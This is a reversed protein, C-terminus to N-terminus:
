QALLRQSQWKRYTFLIPMNSWMGVGVPGWFPHPRLEAEIEDIVLTTQEDIEVFRHQHVWKQFPGRLQRDIFSTPTVSEIKAQWHIPLATLWLTFSMEDGEGLEPPAHHLQVVIPPPTIAKMSSAYRHFQAVQVLPASVTFTHQYKM